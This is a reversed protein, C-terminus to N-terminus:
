HKRLRKVDMRSRSHVAGRYFDSLPETLRWMSVMRNLKNVSRSDYRVGSGFDDKIGVARGAGNYRRSSSEYEYM